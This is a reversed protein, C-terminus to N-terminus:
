PPGLIGYEALKSGLGSLIDKRESNAEHRRSHLFYATAETRDLHELREQLEMIEDQKFLLTRAHLWGFKKLAIFEKDSNMFAALRPYGPRHNEVVDRDTLSM